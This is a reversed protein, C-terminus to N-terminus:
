GSGEPWVRGAASPETGGTGAAVGVAVARLAAALAAAAPPAGPRTELLVRRALLPAGVDRLVVDARAAPAAM